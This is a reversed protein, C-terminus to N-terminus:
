LFHRPEAGISHHQGGHCGPVQGRDTVLCADAFHPATMMSVRAGRRLVCLAILVGGSSGCWVSVVLPRLHYYVSIYVYMYIYIYIYLSLSLSLSVFCAHQCDWNKGNLTM